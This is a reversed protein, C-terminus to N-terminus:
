KQLFGDKYGAKLRAYVFERLVEESIHLKELEVAAKKIKGAAWAETEKVVKSYGSAEIEEPSYQFHLTLIDAATANMPLEIVRSWSDQSKCKVSTPGFHIWGNEVKVIVPDGSPPIKALAMIYSGPIRIQGSWKGTATPTVTMGGLEIHLCGGDYSM